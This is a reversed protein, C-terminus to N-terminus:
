INKKKRERKLAPLNKNSTRCVGRVCITAKFKIHIEWLVIWIGRWKHIQFCSSAVAHSKIWVEVIIALYTLQSGTNSTFFYHFLHFNKGKTTSNHILWEWHLFPLEKTLVLRWVLIFLSKDTELPFQRRELYDQLNKYIWGKHTPNSWFLLYKQSLFINKELM